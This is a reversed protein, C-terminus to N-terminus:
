VICSHIGVGDNELLGSLKGQLGQGQGFDARVLDFDLHFVAADASACFSQQPVAAHRGEGAHAIGQHRAVLGDPPHAPGTTLGGVFLVLPNKDRARLAKFSHAAQKATRGGPQDHGFGSGDSHAFIQFVLRDQQGQRGRGVVSHRAATLALFNARGVQNHSVAHHATQQGAQGHGGTDGCGGDPFGLRM